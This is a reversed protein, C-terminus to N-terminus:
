DRKLRGGGETQTTTTLMASGAGIMSTTVVDQRQVQMAVQLEKNELACTIAIAEDSRTSSSGSSSARTWESVIEIQYSAGQERWELAAVRLTAIGGQSPVFSQSQGVETIELDGRPTAYIPRGAPSFRLTVQSNEARTQPGDGDDETIQLAMTGSWSGALARPAAAVPRGAGARASSGAVGAGAAPATPAGGLQALEGAGTSAVTATLLGTAALLVQTQITSEVQVALRAGVLRAALAYSGEVRVEGEDSSEAGSLALTYRAAESTVELAVVRMSLTGGEPSPVEFTQGIAELRYHGTGDFPVHIPRGSGDFELEIALEQQDRQHSGDLADIEIQMPIRGSWRTGALPGAIACTSAACAV